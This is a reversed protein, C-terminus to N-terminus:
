EGPLIDKPITAATFRRPRNRAIFAVTWIAFYITFGAVTLGIMWEGAWLANLIFRGLLAVAVLGLLSAIVLLPMAKGAHLLARPNAREVNTCLAVIFERYSDGLRETEILSKHSRDEFSVTKGARTYVKARYGTFNIGRPAYFLRITEIDRYPFLTEKGARTAKIELPALVLETEAAFARPRFSYTLRNKDM